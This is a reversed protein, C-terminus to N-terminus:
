PPLALAGVEVPVTSSRTANNGLQGNDNYGWCQVGGNVLACTHVGGAAIADVGGTLGQVQVPVHSDTTSDNGLQGDHNDGWCQVGGNM